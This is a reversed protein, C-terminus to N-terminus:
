PYAQGLQGGWRGAAAVLGTLTFLVVLYVVHQGRTGSNWRLVRWAAAAVLLGLAPWAFLHHLRLAGHGLLDGRTMLLGSVAAGIGGLASCGLAIGSATRLQGAVPRSWLPLAVTDCLAAFFTLAIPFHVIAGHAEAWFGPDM